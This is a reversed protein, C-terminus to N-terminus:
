SMCGVGKTTLVSSGGIKTLWGDRAGIVRSPNSCFREEGAAAESVRNYRPSSPRGRTRDEM